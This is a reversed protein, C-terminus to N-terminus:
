AEKKKTFPPEDMGIEDVDTMEDRGALRYFEACDKCRGRADVYNHYKGCSGRCKSKHLSIGLANRVGACTACLKVILQWEGQVQNCDRCRSVSLSM